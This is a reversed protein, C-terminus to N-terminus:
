PTRGHSKKSNPESAFNEGAPKISAKQVGEASNPWAPHKEVCSEIVGTLTNYRKRHRDECCRQMAYEALQSLTGTVNEVPQENHAAENIYLRVAYALPSEEGNELFAGMAGFAQVAVDRTAATRGAGEFILDITERGSDMATIFADPNSM